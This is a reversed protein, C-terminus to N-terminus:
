VPGNNDTTRTESGAPQTRPQTLGDGPYEAPGRWVHTRAHSGPLYGPRPRRVPTIMSVDPPLPTDRQGAFPAKSYSCQYGFRQGTGSPGGTLIWTRVPWPAGATAWGSWGSGVWGGRVEGEVG